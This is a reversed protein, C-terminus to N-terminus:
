GPRTYDFTMLWVAAEAVALRALLVRPRLDPNVVGVTIAGFCRQIVEDSRYLHISITNEVFRAYWTQTQDM